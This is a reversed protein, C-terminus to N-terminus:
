YGPPPEVPDDGPSARAGDDIWGRIGDIVSQDLFPGGQPMRDGVDQTGELKHILYSDDPNGPHVRLLSSVQESQVNVLADFSAETSSLNMSFPLENGTGTHCVACRPTFVDSQIEALTMASPPPDDEDEENAVTVTVEDSVGVNGLDDEARATLVYTGDAFATTDWQAAYIESSVTAWVTGNILFDVGVIERLSDVSALIDITGSVESGDAPATLTVVPAQPLEPVIDRVIQGRIEGDPQSQSAILVYLGDDLYADLAEGDLPEGIAFWHDVDETDQDFAVVQPGNEGAAGQHIGGSTSMLLETLRTHAVVTGGALDVTLAALGTASTAVPPVVQDGDLAVFVVEIDDSVLQARIEGPPHQPSHVNVYLEGALLQELEDQSLEGSASWHAPDDQDQELPIVIPGNTGAFGEHIHAANAHDLDTTNVHYHFELTGLDLTLASVGTADTDVPPVEQQGSLVDILLMIGDPVFQGRLLGDPHAQNAVDLYLRGANLAELGEADLPLGAHFWHSPNTTSQNLEALSPGRTGAYGAHLEVSTANGLGFLTLHVIANPVPADDLTIAAWGRVPTDQAPIQQGGTLAAFQLSFGEPLIQGRVEGAPYLDSHVNFYLEGALLRDVQAASLAANSPFEFRTPDAPDQVLHILIPGNSGAFGQHVHAETPDMNEVVVTGSIAGTDLDVEIEAQGTAATDVPPIEEGGSLEVTFGAPPPPPPPPPPDSRSSSGCATIAFVALGVIVWSAAAHLLASAHQKM